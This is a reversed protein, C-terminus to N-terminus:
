RCPQLIVATREENKIACDEDGVSRCFFLTGKEGFRGIPDDSEPERAIISPKVIYAFGDFGVDPHELM